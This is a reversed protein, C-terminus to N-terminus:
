DFCRLSSCYRARSCAAPSHSRRAAARARYQELTVDSANKHLNLILLTSLQWATDLGFDRAAHERTRDGLGFLGGLFQPQRHDDFRLDVGAPATLAAADFERARRFINVVQGFLHDSHIQDRMLGTWFAAGHTRQEDFLPQFNFLLKIQSQQEVARHRLQDEHGRGCAAHVNLFDRGLRGFLYQLFVDIRGDAHLRELRAIQGEAQAQRRLQYALGGLEHEREIPREDFHVGREELNVGEQQGFVALKVRQVCLDIKVVVREVAVFFVGLQAVEVFFRRELDFGGFVVEVVDLEVAVDGAHDVAGPQRHRRHVDDLQGPALGGVEEVDAAPGRLLADLVGEAYQQGVRVHLGDQDVDEAADDPAVHDRAAHALRGAVQLDGFRDDDPQFSCVYFLTLLHQFFGSQVEDDGVSHLVRSLLGDGRRSSLVVSVIFRSDLPFCKGYEM